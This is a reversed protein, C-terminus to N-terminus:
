LGQLCCLGHTDVHCGPAASAVYDVSGKTSVHVLSILMAEHLQVHWLCADVHDGAAASIAMHILMTEPFLM